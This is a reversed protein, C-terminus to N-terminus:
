IARPLPNYLKFPFIDEGSKQFRKRWTRVCSLELTRSIQKPIIKLMGGRGVFLSSGAVVRPRCRIIPIAFVAM